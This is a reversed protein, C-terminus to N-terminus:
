LMLTLRVKVDSSRSPVLLLYMTISILNITLTKKFLPRDTFM